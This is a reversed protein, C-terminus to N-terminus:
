TNKCYELTLVQLLFFVQLLLSFSIDAIMKSVYTAVSCPFLFLDDCIFLPMCNSANAVQKIILISKM